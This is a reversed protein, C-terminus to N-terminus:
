ALVKQSGMAKVAPRKRLLYDVSFPGAGFAVMWVLPMLFMLPLIDTLSHDGTGTLAGILNM